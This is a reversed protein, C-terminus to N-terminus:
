TGSIVASTSDGIWLVDSDSVFPPQWIAISLQVVNPCASRGEEDVRGAEGVVLVARASWKRFVISMRIIVLMMFFWMLRFFRFLFRPAVRGRGCAWTVGHSTAGSGM